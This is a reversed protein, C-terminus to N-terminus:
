SARASQTVCMKELLVGAGITVFATGLVLRAYENRLALFLCNFGEFAADFGGVVLGNCLIPSTLLRLNVFCRIGVWQTIALALVIFGVLAVNVDVGLCALFGAHGVSAALGDNILILNVATHPRPHTDCEIAVLDITLTANCCSQLSHTLALVILLKAAADALALCKAIDRHIIFIILIQLGHRNATPPPLPLVWM